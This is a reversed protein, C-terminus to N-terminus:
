VYALRAGPGAVSKEWRTDQDVMVPGRSNAQVAAKSFDELLQEEIQQQTSKSPAFAVKGVQKGIQGGIGAAVLVAVFTLVTVVKKWM